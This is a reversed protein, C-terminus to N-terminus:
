EQKPTKEPFIMNWKYYGTEQNLQYELIASFTNGKKSVLDNVEIKGNKLLEKVMSKTLKKKMSGLFKDDKWLTFKCGEKWAVCGYNKQNEVVQQGCNPCLGLVEIEENSQNVLKEGGDKKIKESSEAVFKRIFELFESKQVKGKEIDLLTKELRGTYGLDFLEKVPFREVLSKGLDTTTLSKGKAEIYHAVQLKHITEARTAATGISFGDLVVEMISNENGETGNYGRGASNMVSLLTKETHLAPPKTFHSTIELADVTVSEKEKVNPLYDDKKDTGSVKKWGEVLMVKGKTVFVGGINKIETHIITEAYESVPMFQMLFRNKIENYLIDEEASLKIPLYYTPIIASHGEVKKNDFIRKSDSFVLESEYPLGVKLVDLVKRARDKLSEELYTSDTRPYTIHKKEYLSQAIELVKKSTWGKHASTVHGQLTTLSFLSPAYEKKETKERKTVEATKGGKKVLNELSAKSQFKDKDKYSFTGKYLEGKVTKFDAMLRFFEEPKFNEIEKDRDYVIKLTPLLVRGINLVGKGGGRYRLTALSTLNIGILWDAWQRSIGADSVSQLESNLKLKALGNRVEDPTWENLLLRYIPKKTKIENAIIDFIIQGERDWDTAAIVETVEKKQILSKIVKLQKNAGADTKGDRTKVKYRFQEPTFPFNDFKWYTMKEDYDKADWLELLHGFAWTVYYDVCEIYGDGRSKVSLADTINKAVSPKEAVIVKM